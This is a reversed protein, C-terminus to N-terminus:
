HDQEVLDILKNISCINLKVLCEAKVNGKELWFYKDVRDVLIELGIHREM